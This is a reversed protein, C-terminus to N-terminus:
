HYARSVISHWVALAMHRRMSNDNGDSSPVPLLRRFTPQAAHRRMSNESGDSSSVPLLRRFSPQAAHRGMSNDNEDRSPVPLLRRLTPQAAHHRKSNEDGTALHWQYYAGSPLSHRMADWQTRAGTALHCQYYAGSALSHRMADWQTRAGTALHCQYYAGSALSHRLAQLRYSRARSRSPEYPIHVSRTLIFYIITEKGLVNIELLLAIFLYMVTWLSIALCIFCQEQWGGISELFIIWVPLEASRFLFPSIARGCHGARVLCPIPHSSVPSEMDGLDGSMGKICRFSNIVFLSNIRIRLCNWLSWKEM